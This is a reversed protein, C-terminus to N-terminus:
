SDGGTRHRPAADRVPHKQSDGGEEGLQLAEQHYEKILRRELTGDMFDAWYEYRAEKVRMRESSPSPELLVLRYVGGKEGGIMWGYKLVMRGFAINEASLRISYGSKRKM